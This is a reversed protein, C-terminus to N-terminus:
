KKKALEQLWKNLEMENILELKHPIWPKIYPDNMFNPPFDSTTTLIGKSTKFDGSLVGLLARIDDYRVNKGERYAKVSNIIRISGVGRKVAIIDRGFDNSRPTLIVEEFGAIDYAAAIIEERKRPPIEFMLKPNLNLKEIIAKWPISVVKILNGETDKKYPTVIGQVLIKIDTKKSKKRIIM